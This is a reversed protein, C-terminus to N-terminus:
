RGRWVPERDELFADIGEDKDETAFLGVFLEREYDLGAELDLRSAARVAEKARRLAVPSKDAMKQALDNVRDDLADAPVAAEVLGIEAAETADILEGSLVLRMAQGPGVLRVLRQTGGGGPVLGLNIEPQGLKADDRAFRVDCAQALECGGGLAHGNIRAIVPKPCDAVTEYVRPRESAERQEVLSRDRLETVDAGAVFARAEESGTLVVVRVADDDAVAAFVAKLERRVAANMANRADPRDIAVTAVGEGRAGVEAEVHECDAAVAVVSAEKGGDAREGGDRM